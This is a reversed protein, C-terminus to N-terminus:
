PQTQSPTLLQEASAPMYPRIMKGESDMYGFEKLKRAMDRNAIISADNLAVLPDVGQFVASQWADSLAREVLMHAPHLPIEKEHRSQDLAVELLEDSFLPSRKLAEMNASSWSFEYGYSLMLDMAFDMQTETQMWWKIFEWAENPLATNKMIYCGSATLPQDYILTGDEQEVGLSPGITWSGDLEPAATRILLYTSLDGIGIPCKGDRFNVFFSGITHSVSYKTYLETMSVFAESFQPTMFNVKSGDETYLEAGHQFLYPTMSVLPKLSATNALLTNFNMGNDYLVPLMDIVDNWTKPISLGLKDLIDTRYYMLWFNSAEPLAYCGGDHMFPVFMEPNFRAAVEAFDSYEKLDKVAGRLSLDYARSLLGGCVVDPTEGSSIAIIIKQEDLVSSIHVEIGTQPTFSQAILERMKELQAGSRITWVNLTHAQLTASEDSKHFFSYFLQRLQEILKQLFNKNAKPLPEEASHIYIRDVELPQRVLATLFSSLNDLMESFREINSVFGDLGGRKTLIKRIDSVTVKLPSGIAAKNTNLVSCLSLYEEDIRDAFSALRERVDPIFNEIQWNRNFDSSNGRIMKVDLYFERMEQLIQYMHGYVSDLAAASAELKISHTGKNFYFPIKDNEQALYHNDFSGGTYPFSYDYFGDFPIQDDIYINRYVPSKKKDSDNHAYKIAIYYIGPNNIEFTYTVFDGPKDWTEASLSNITTYRYDYPCSSPNRTKNGRISARSKYDFREAEIIISDKGLSIDGPLSAAYDKYDGQTSLERVTISGILAEGQIVTIELLNKGHGLDCVVAHNTKLKSISQKQWQFVRESSPFLDNGFSDTAYREGKDKWLSHFAARKEIEEGNISFSFLFDQTSQNTIYYEVSFQYQGDKPINFPVSFVSGRGVSLTSSGFECSMEAAFLDCQQIPIFDNAGVTISVADAIYPVSVATNQAAHYKSLDSAGQEPSAMILSMWILGFCALVALVKRLIIM